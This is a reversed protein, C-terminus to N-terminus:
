SGYLDVFAQSRTLVESLCQVRDVLVEFNDAFAFPLPETQNAQGLDSIM